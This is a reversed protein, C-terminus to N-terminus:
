PKADLVILDPPQGTHCGKCAVGVGWANARISLQRTQLLISASIHATQRGNRQRVCKEHKTHRGDVCIDERTEMVAEQMFGTCVDGGFCTVGDPACLWKGTAPM